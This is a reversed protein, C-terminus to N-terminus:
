RSLRKSINSEWTLAREFGNRGTRFDLIAQQVEDQTSVVFPGYHVTIQELPMGALLVFRAENGNGPVFVEIHDGDRQFEAVHFTKIRPGRALFIEGQLVYLIANWRLPLVQRIRGGPKVSIYFYSIPTHTLDGLPAAMGHSEGAIIRVSVRGDDVTVVPIDKSAVDRYQPAMYRIHQPLDIWLQLAEITDSSDRELDATRAHEAHMIGRGATMVQVSGPGITGRNGLCDEHDIAGSIVYSIIEQGRHPHDPISSADSVRAAFHDLMMFPSLNRLKPSPM